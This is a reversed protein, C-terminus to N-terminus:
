KPNVTADISSAEEASGHTPKVFYHYMTGNGADVDAYTTGVVPGRMNLLRASRRDSSDSRYVNYSSTSTSPRWTLYNFHCGKGLVAKIVVQRAFESCGLVGGISVTCPFAPVGIEMNTILQVDIVDVRGDGNVDCDTNRQAWAAASLITLFVVGRRVVLRLLPLRLARLVPTGAATMNTAKDPLTFAM